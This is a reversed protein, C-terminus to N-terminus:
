DECLLDVLRYDGRGSRDEGIFWVSGSYRESAFYVSRDFGAARCTEDAADRGCGGRGTACEAVPRGRVEPEAFFVTEVGRAGGSVRVRQGPAYDTRPSYSGSSRERNYVRTPALSSISRDFVTNRLDRIDRDLSDCVGDYNAHVCVTWDGSHVEMSQAKDNFNRSQLNTVADALTLRDGTFNPGSYLTIGTESGPGRFRVRRVSSIRDNFAWQSMNPMDQDIIQCNGRFDAHICVEWRGGGEIRMSSVADNLGRSTLNTVEGTVTVSRGQYNVHEFLTISGGRQAQAPAALAMAGLLAAAASAVCSTLRTM